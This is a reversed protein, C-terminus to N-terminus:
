RLARRAQDQDAQAQARRRSIWSVLADFLDVVTKSFL